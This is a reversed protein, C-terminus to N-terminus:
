YILINSYKEFFFFFLFLFLKYYNLIKNLVKNKHDFRRIEKRTEVDWLIVKGDWSGSLFTTEDPSVGINWVEASHGELSTELEGTKINWVKITKDSCAAFVIEDKVLGISNIQNM